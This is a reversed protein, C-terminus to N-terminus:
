SELAKQVIKALDIAHYPKALYNVGENLVLSDGFLDASYGTTYVVKLDPREKALVESLERGSKTGPMVLDTLLLEVQNCHDKWLAIAQDSDTALIVKYHYYELIEQVLQRIAPDDEVVLVTRGKGDLESTEEAPNQEAELLKDSIPLYIKFTTGKGVESQVDIWGGHQKVIGYVTALGMGTGKGIDKTTFFPEFIHELVSRAMGCGTDTVSMCVFQGERIDPNQIGLLSDVTEVFTKLLLRGGHPMADRANVCLNMLIQEMNTSDAFICPLQPTCDICFEIDEGIVRQLMRSLNNLLLNLDVPKPQTIQKRSFALLQRTLMTARETADAIQCLPEIFQPTISKSQLQLSTYGSIITLINNFDHAIGAALQGVAEMKQAHRLQNELSRQESIDEMMILAHSDGDLALPEMSLLIQRMEHKKTGVSCEVKSVSKNQLIQRFIKPDVDFGFKMELPTQGVAEERSFGTMKSFSSNVDLFRLTRIEQIALPVPSAHFAKSFCEQSIRNSEEALTRNAIELRLSENAAKLETTREAVMKDLQDMRLNAQQTVEWKRFLAHALQLVEINDFPKKLILLNDSVQLRAAMDAWSYDSYATCIVIQLNPDAKRLRTITEVGDWGPPMRIDVFAVAYPRGEQLAKQVKSLGEQGQFAFDLDFRKQLSQKPAQGFLVAEAEEIAAIRDPTSGLIKLFDDHIASNDDIVLLRNNINSNM